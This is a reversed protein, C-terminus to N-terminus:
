FATKIEHLDVASDFLEIKMPHPGSLTARIRIQGWGRRFNTLKSQFEKVSKNKFRYTKELYPLSTIYANKTLSKIRKVDAKSPLWIDGLFFSTLVTVPDASLLESWLDPHHASAAGHHAKKYIGAPGNACRFNSLVASWGRTPDTVNELDSGLLLTHCGIEVWLAIASDNPTPSPARTRLKIQDSYLKNFTMRALQVSADSPSLATVNVKLNSGDVSLEQNYLRRDQIAFKPTGTRAGKEKRREMIDFIQLYEDVGRKGEIDHTEAAFMFRRFETQKIADSIFLEADPCGYVVESIGRIHDDHWHSVIILKIAKAPDIRLMELYDLVAPKKSDPTLCSDVAAWQNNGFHILIAEGFGSGFLSLEMENALPAVTKDNMTL